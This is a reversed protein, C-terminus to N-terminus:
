KVWEKSLLFDYFSDGNIDSFDKYKSGLLNEEIFSDFNEVVKKPKESYKGIEFSWICGSKDFCYILGGGHEAFPTFYDLYEEWFEKLDNIEDIICKGDESYIPLIELWSIQPAGYSELFSLYSSADFQLRKQLWDFEKSSGVYICSFDCDIFDTEPRNAYERVEDIKRKLNNKLM